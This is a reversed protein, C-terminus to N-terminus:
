PETSAMTSEILWISLEFTEQLTMWLPVPAMATFSM